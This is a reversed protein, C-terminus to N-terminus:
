DKLDDVIIGFDKATKMVTQVSLKTIINTEIEILTTDPLNSKRAL